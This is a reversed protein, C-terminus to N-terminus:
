KSATCIKVTVTVQRTFMLREVPSHSTVLNNAELVWFHNIEGKGKRLGLREYNAVAKIGEGCIGKLRAKGIVTWCRLGGM